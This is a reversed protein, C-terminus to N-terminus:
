SPAPPRLSVPLLFPLSSAVLIPLPHPHLPDGTRPTPTSPPPPPSTSVPPARARPPVPRTPLENDSWTASYPSAAQARLSSNSSRIPRLKLNKQVSRRLKDLLALDKSIDDSTPDSDSPYDPSESSTPSPSSLSLLDEDQVQDVPTETEIITNAQAPHKVANTRLRLNPPRGKAPPMRPSRPVRSARPPPFPTPPSSSSSALASSSSDLPCAPRPHRALLSLLPRSPSHLEAALAEASSSIRAALPVQRKRCKDASNMRYSASHQVVLRFALIISAVRAAFLRRAHCVGM